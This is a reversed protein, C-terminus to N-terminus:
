RVMVTVMMMMIGDGDHSTIHHSSAATVPDESASYNGCQKTQKSAVEEAAAAEVLPM